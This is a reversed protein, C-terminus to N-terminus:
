EKEELRDYMALEVLAYYWRRERQPDDHTGRERDRVMVYVSYFGARTPTGQLVGNISDFTVGDPLTGEVLYEPSQVYNSTYNVQASFHKNVMGRTRTVSVSCFYSPTSDYYRPGGACAVALLGMM